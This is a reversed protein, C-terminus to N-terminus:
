RNARAVGSVTSMGIILRELLTRAPANPFCVEVGHHTHHLHMAGGEEFVRNLVDDMGRLGAVADKSVCEWARGSAVTQWSGEGALGRPWISLPSRAACRARLWAQGGEEPEVVIEMRIGDFEGMVVAGVGQVVRGTPNGVLPLDSLANAMTKAARRLRAHRGVSTIGLVLMGSGFFAAVVALRSAALRATRPIMGGWELMVAFVIPNVSVLLLLAAIVIIKTGRSSGM